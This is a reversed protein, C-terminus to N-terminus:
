VTIIVLYSIEGGSCYRVGDPPSVSDIGLNGHRSSLRNPILLVAHAADHSKIYTVVFNDNCRVTLHMNTFLCHITMWKAVILHSIIYSQVLLGKRLMITTEQFSPDSQFTVNGAWTDCPHGGAWVSACPSNLSHYRLENAGPLNSCFRLYTIKFSIETVSPQPMEELNCESSHWQVKSIIIWCQNLYHSPAMLCCAMVQALTSRSTHRWITDSPWLSNIQFSVSKFCKYKITKVVKIKVFINCFFLKLLSSLIM